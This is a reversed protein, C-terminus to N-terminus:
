QEPAREIVRIIQKYTKQREKTEEQFIDIVLVPRKGRSTSALVIDGPKIQNVRLYKPIHWRYERNTNLKLNGNETGLIHFGRIANRNM